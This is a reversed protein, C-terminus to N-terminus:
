SCVGFGYGAFSSTGANPLGRMMLWVMEAFGIKGILDEIAYGRYRIVGPQMDIINTRWWDCVEKEVDAVNSDTM